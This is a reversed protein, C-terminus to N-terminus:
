YAEQYWLVKQKATHRLLFTSGLNRLSELVKAFPTGWHTIRQHCHPQFFEQDQAALKDGPLNQNILIRWAGLLSEKALRLMKM